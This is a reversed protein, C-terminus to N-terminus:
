KTQYNNNSYYNNTPYNMDTANYYNGNDPTAPNSNENVFDGTGQVTNTTLRSADNIENNENNNIKICCICEVGKVIFYAGIIITSLPFIFFLYEYFSVDTEYQTLWDKPNSLKYYVM